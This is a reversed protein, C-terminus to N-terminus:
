DLKSSAAMELILLQLLQELGQALLQTHQAPMMDKVQTQM